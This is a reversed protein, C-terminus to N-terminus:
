WNLMWHGVLFTWHAANYRLFCHDTILKNSLFLHHFSAIRILNITTEIRTAIM